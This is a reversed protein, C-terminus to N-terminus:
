GRDVPRSEANSRILELLTGALVPKVLYVAGLHEAESRLVPDDYGSFVIVQTAHNVDRALVVLQLGNFAGLRVDTIMVDFRQERLRRRAEEFTSCAVVEHGPDDSLARQLADLLSLDDDVILIHRRPADADPSAPVDGYPPTM